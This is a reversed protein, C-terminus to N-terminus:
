VAVDQARHAQTAAAQPAEVVEVFVRGQINQIARQPVVGSLPM